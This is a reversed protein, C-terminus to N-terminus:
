PSKRRQYPNSSFIKATAGLLHTRFTHHIVSFTKTKRDLHTATQLNTTLRLRAGVIARHKAKRSHRCQRRRKRDRLSRTVERQKGLSFYGLSLAGWLARGVSMRDKPVAPARRPKRRCKRTGVFVQSADTRAVRRAKRRGGARAWHPGTLCVDMHALKAASVSSRLESAAACTPTCGQYAAVNENTMGAKAPIVLLFVDANGDIAFWGRAPLWV